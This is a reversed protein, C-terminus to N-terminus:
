SSVFNHSLIIILVILVLFVFGILVALVALLVARGIRRVALVVVFLVVLVLHIQRLAGRSPAKKRSCHTLRPAQVRVQRIGRCRLLFMYLISITSSSLVMEFWIQRYGYLFSVMFFLFAIFIYCFILKYKEKLYSKGIVGATEKTKGASM